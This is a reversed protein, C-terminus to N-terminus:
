APALSVTVEGTDAKQPDLGVTYSGSVPLSLSVTKGSRGVLVPYFLATGDPKLVSLRLSCCSSTGVTVGSLRLSARQGAAGPFTLNANQGPVTMRATVPAGGVALSGGVDPPVDHLTLRVSGTDADQPDVFVVYTGAVPLDATDLFGGKSGVFAPFVLTSGDPERVSVRVSCCTSTGVTVGDVTVAVRAGTGGPFSLRANQGPVTTAVAVPPGGMDAEAAADAPVDYLTLTMGGVADGQPDVLITYRGTVPLTRTDVFGGKSGVYMPFALTTGNPRLISVKSGCCTSTGMTVDSLALSVRGGAAGDFALRVDEGPATTRVEVPPGGPAIPFTQVATGAVTQTDVQGGAAASVTLEVAGGAVPVFTGTYLGDGRASLPVTEGGAGASVSVGAPEGCRSALAVVEVSEGVDVSFGPRPSELWLRPAGACGVAGGADLRGGTRTRGALSAVPAATRLLLAKLGVDSAEPLAARALAATGAVHPAAMSTGSASRYTGGPWTSLVGVGPASLDVNVDGYNSFWAHADAADAAAVSVVNPLDYSSPYAPFLDNDLSDNGAAAVFLSDAADAHAIADRLAQSFGGGSWSNNTVRAGNASAYLVARVANATTGSGNAGLFKLAMLRVRWNVGAVGLGNNGVAGITGAVHTGHGNDDSPDNDGSVFDWGRWDDVYGNGDNDVGDSRCGACDEGPNVWANAALDPHGVDIGTDVVGVVVNASGTGADWASPAGIAGLGWLDPFLPDDPVAAASVVYNREVYRVRRDRRLRRLAAAARGPRVSVLTARIPAFRNQARAGAATLAARRGREAVGAKWGVILQGPVARPEAAAAPAPVLVALCAVAPM